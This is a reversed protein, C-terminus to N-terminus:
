QLISFAQEVVHGDVTTARVRVTYSSKTEYDFSAASQLESGVITFADNDIDGAGSVLAYTTDSNDTASDTTLSGIVSGPAGNEVTSTESLYVTSVPVGVRSDGLLQVFGISNGAKGAALIKGNPLIEVVYAQDDGGWNTVFKGSNGFSEDVSGDKNLRVIVFDKNVGNDAHGVIVLKGDPAVKARYGADNASLVPVVAVGDRGFSSDPTGDPKFGVVALDDEIEGVLRVSGDRLVVSSHYLEYEGFSYTERSQNGYGGDAKTVYLPNSKRKSSYQSFTTTSDDEHLVVTIDDHSAGNSSYVEKGSQDFHVVKYASTVVIQADKRIAVSYGLERYNDRPSLNWSITSGNTGFQDDHQGDSTFRAINYDGVAIIRGLDDTTMSLFERGYRPTNLRTYGSTEGFTPDLHHMGPKFRMVSAWGDIAGVALVKGDELVKMDTIYDVGSSISRLHRGNGHFTPDLMGPYTEYDPSPTYDPVPVVSIRLSDTDVLQRQISGSGLDNTEITLTADGVFGEAPQYSLWHFFIDIDQLTGEFVMKADDIGDGALYTLGGNPDPFVSSMTGSDVSITVRLPNLGADADTISIRNGPTNTVYDRIFALPQNVFTTQEAPLNNVPAQNPSIVLAADLADSGDFAHRPELSEGQFLNKQERRLRRKKLVKKLNKYAM